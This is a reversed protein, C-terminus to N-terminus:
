YINLIYNEDRFLSKLVLSIKVNGSHNMYIFKQVNNFSLYLRALEFVTKKEKLDLAGFTDM